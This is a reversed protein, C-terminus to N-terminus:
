PAPRIVVYQAWEGRRVLVSVPRAKDVKALTAEFQKVDAVQVNAVSLIVDGPRLGARAAPGQVKEVLVGGSQRLERKQAANLDVLSLGGQVGDVVRQVGDSIAQAEARAPQDLESAGLTRGMLPLLEGKEEDFVFLKKALAPQYNLMDVLFSLASLNNGLHQFTGAERAMAEDVETDLIQEVTTRMRTVTQVAQDLGLVSLVGRMQALQSVAVHLGAKEAPARFFQDLSKEAEGLSVKLEGVVSGMTQRDSVRRYLQEMWGDLPRAAEGDIVSGLRQALDQTRAALEPEAPDFDEFAAELYLTTTAVEMSLEPRLAGPERAAQDVARVLSQALATSAPHLKILSDGILGFQDVVQRARNVDGGSFLSWSEKAANIRKRAQVLVAPDFRGLSAQMYDVPAADGLLEGAKAAEM